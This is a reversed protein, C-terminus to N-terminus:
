GERNRLEVAVTSSGNGSSLQDFQQNGFYNNGFVECPTRNDFDLIRASFCSEFIWDGTKAPIPVSQKAPLSRITKKPVAAVTSVQVRVRARLLRGRNPASAAACGKPLRAGRGHPEVGRLSKVSELHQLPELTDCLLAARRALECFRKTLACSILGPRPWPRWM